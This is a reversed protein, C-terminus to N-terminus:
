IGDLPDDGTIIENVVFIFEIDYTRDNGETDTLTIRVTENKSENLNSFIIERTESDFTTSAEDIGEVKVAVNESGNEDFIESLEYIVGLNNPFLEDYTQIPPM